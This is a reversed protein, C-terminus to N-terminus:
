LARWFSIWRSEYTAIFVTYNPRGASGTGLVCVGVGFRAATKYTDPSSALRQASKPLHAPDFTRYAIDDIEGSPLRMDQQCAQQHFTNRGMRELNSLHATQRAQIFAAAVADGAADERDASPTLLGMVFFLLISLLVKRGM